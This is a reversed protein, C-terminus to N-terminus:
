QANNSLQDYMQIWKNKAENFKNQSKNIAEQADNKDQESANPDNQVAGEADLDSAYDQLTEIYKDLSKNYKKLTKYDSKTLSSKYKKVDNGNRKSIKTLNGTRTNFKKIHQQETESDVGNGSLRASTDQADQQASQILGNELNEYNEKTMPSQVAAALNKKSKSESVSNKKKAMVVKNQNTDMTVFSGFMLTSVALLSVIKSKNM